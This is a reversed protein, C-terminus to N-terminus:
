CLGSSAPGYPLIVHSAIIWGPDLYEFQVHEPGGVKGRVRLFSPVAELKILAEQCMDVHQM